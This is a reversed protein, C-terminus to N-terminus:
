DVAFGRCILNLIRELGVWLSTWVQYYVSCPWEIRLRWTAIQLREHRRRLLEECPVM